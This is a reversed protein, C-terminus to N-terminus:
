AMAKNTARKAAQKVSNKGTEKGSLNKDTVKTNLEIGNEDFNNVLAKIMPDLDHAARFSNYDLEEMGVNRM